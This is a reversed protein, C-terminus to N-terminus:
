SATLVGFFADFYEASSRALIAVKDGKGVGMALQRNAIRNVNASFDGWNQRDGEIVLAEAKPRIRGHYEILDVLNTAPNFTLLQM